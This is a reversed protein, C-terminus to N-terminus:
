SSAMWAASQGVSRSPMPGVSRWRMRSTPCLVLVIGLGVGQHGARQRLCIALRGLRGLRRPRRGRLGPAVELAQQQGEPAHGGLQALGLLQDVIQARAELHTAGAAVHMMVAALGIRSPHAHAVGSHCTATADAAGAGGTDVTM